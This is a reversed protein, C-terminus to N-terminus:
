RIVRVAVVRRRRVEVSRVSTTFRSTVSIWRTRVIGGTGVAHSTRSGTVPISLVIGVAAEPITTIEERINWRCLVRLEKNTGKAEITWISFVTVVLPSVISDDIIDVHAAVPAVGTGATSVGSVQGITHVEVKLPLVTYVAHVAYRTTSVFSANKHAIVGIDVAGEAITGIAAFHPCM